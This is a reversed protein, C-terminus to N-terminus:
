GLESFGVCRGVQILVLAEAVRQASLAEDPFLEGHAEVRRAVLARNGCLELERQYWRCRECQFLEGAADTGSM